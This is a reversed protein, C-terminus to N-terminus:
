KAVALGRLLETVRRADLASLGSTPEDLFLLPPETLLEMALNVRKRQGGSIGKKEPSGIEVSKLSADMGLRALIRDILAAIEDNKLDLRLRATYYLAEYVTLEPHMIDDQPVYGISGRFFDYGDHVEVGNIRCTGSTPRNYGNMVNLLTTKGAGSPGMLATFESPYVTLSIEDLLRKKGGSTPVELTISDADVRINGTFLRLKLGNNLMVQCLCTGFAVM